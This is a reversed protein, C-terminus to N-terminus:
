LSVRTLDCCSMVMIWNKVSTTSRLMLPVKAQANLTSHNNNQTRKATHIPLALVCMQPFFTETFNCLLLKNNATFSFITLSSFVLGTNKFLHVSCPQYTHNKKVNLYFWPIHFSLLEKLPKM